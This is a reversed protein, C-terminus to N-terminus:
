DLLDAPHIGLADAIRYLDWVRVERQGTEYRSIYSPGHGLAQSLRAASIGSAMRMQRIRGGLRKAAAARSRPELPRRHGAHATM